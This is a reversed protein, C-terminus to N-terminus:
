FMTVLACIYACHPSEQLMYQRNIHRDEIM